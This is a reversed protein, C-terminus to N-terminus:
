AAPWESPSHGSRAAPCEKLHDAMADWLDVLMRESRQSFLPRVISQVAKSLWFGAILGLAVSAGFLGLAANQQAPGGINLLLQVFQEIMLLCLMLMSLGVVAHLRRTWREMRLGKRLQEVFEADTTPKRFMRM